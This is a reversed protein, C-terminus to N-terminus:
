SSPPQSKLSNTGFADHWGAAGVLGADDGLAALAIEISEYLNRPGHRNLAKRIPEMLKGTLGLGGGVVIIEPSFVHALNAVGIGAAASVEVWIHSAIPDDVEILEMLMPGRADLGAETARRNLATGSALEELTAPQQRAASSRDIITHGAEALSYRGHVLRGGLVVGAGVGTSFTVYLVDSRGRGAGFQAEGVAALDTDNAIAVPMGLEESLYEHALAPVWTPPLNPAWALRGVDYGVRGPVGIVAQSPIHGATLGKLLSILADPCTASRPTPKVARDLVAGDPDVIAARMRTGGLDIAALPGPM